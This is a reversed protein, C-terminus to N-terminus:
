CKFMLYYFASCAGIVWLINVLWALLNSLWRKLRHNPNNSLQVIHWKDVLIEDEWDWPDDIWPQNDYLVVKPKSFDLDELWRIIIYFLWLWMILRAIFWLVTLIM